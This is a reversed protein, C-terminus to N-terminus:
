HIIYVNHEINFCQCFFFFFNRAYSFDELATELEISPKHIGDLSSMSMMTRACAVGTWERGRGCLCVRFGSCKM